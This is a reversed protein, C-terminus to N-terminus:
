DIESLKWDVKFEDWKVSVLNEVSELSCIYPFISVDREKLVRFSKIAKSGSSYAELCEYHRGKAM